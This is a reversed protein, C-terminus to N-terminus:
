TRRSGGDERGDEKLLRLFGEWESKKMGYSESEDPFSGDKVARIYDRVVRRAYIGLSGFPRVFRPANPAKVPKPLVDMTDGEVQPLIDNQNSITTTATTSIPPTSATLTSVETSEATSTPIAPTPPESPIQAPEASEASGNSTSAAPLPLKVDDLALMTASEIEAREQEQEQAPVTGATFVDDQDPAYVGLVDTVVLVQGSTADGAGIGITLIDVDETIKRGLRRPVAEVLLGFAGANQMARAVNYVEFASEATKGQVLYGSLFTARQPQLGIHAMVPIGIETLKKVLPIIELGGEIKLGDIGSEKVMRIANRVGQEVSVEFSGFPMDAFVFASKCGRTVIKAHHIMEDLTIETTSSHGLAVQSLSDGVLVMDAGCSEALLATPYDYATIVSIPVKSNAMQRLASLTMKSRPAFSQNVPRASMSRTHIKPLPLGVKHIGTLRGSTNTGFARKQGERGFPGDQRIIRDGSAPGSGPREVVEARPMKIGLAELEKIAVELEEGEMGALDIEIGEEENAALLEEIVGEDEQEAKSLRRVGRTRIIPTSKPQHPFIDGWSSKRADHYGQKSHSKSFTMRQINGDPCCTDMTVHGSRKMPPAVLRPWGFAEIRLEQTMEDVGAWDVADTKSGEGAESVDPEPLSVVELVGEHGEIERLISRGDKKLRAKEAEERGVGGMRGVSSAPAGTIATEAAFTSQPRDGRAVVVYCYGTDEEGRGSHKTRRTFVPRQIRQSYGCTSRTGVLPCAGDHPCPAVVHLPSESTSQDLIYQRARSIADWGAPTSRDILITYPSNLSLLQDLHTQQSPQTPLTSLLFTSLTLVPPEASYVHKRTFELEAAREPIGETVRKAIDLGHRSSHVLQVRLPKTTGKSRSTSSLAGMADATAWMGPGLGGSFEVVEIVRERDRGVVDLWDRGLRRGLEELVNRVVGYEGPLVGAAKALESEFTRRPKGSRHDVRTDKGKGAQPGKPLSLYSERLQRLNDLQDIQKQIGAKMEEPLVVVGVRKSGLVAAPSRREERREFDPLGGDREGSQALDFDGEDPPNEIVLGHSELGFTHPRKGSSTAHHHRRSSAAEGEEALDLDPMRSKPDGGHRSFRSSPGAHEPHASRSRSMGMGMGMGMGMDDHGILEDFSGDLPPHLAHHITPQQQAQPQATAAGFIKSTSTIYRKPSRKAITFTNSQRLLRAPRSLM